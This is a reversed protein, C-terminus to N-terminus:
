PITSEVAPQRLLVGIASKPSFIKEAFGKM